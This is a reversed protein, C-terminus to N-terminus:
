SGYGAFHGQDTLKKHNKKNIKEAMTFDYNDLYKEFMFLNGDGYGDICNVFAGIFNGTNLCQPCGDKGLDTMIYQKGDCQPCSKRKTKFNFTHNFFKLKM